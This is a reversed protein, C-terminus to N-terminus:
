EGRGMGGSWDGGVGGVGSCGLCLGGGLFEGCLLWFLWELFLLWARGAASRPHVSGDGLVGDDIVRRPLLLLLLLFLLFPVVLLM